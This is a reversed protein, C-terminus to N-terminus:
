KTTLKLEGRAIFDENIEYGQDVQSKRTSGAVSRLLAVDPATLIIIAKQLQEESLGTNKTITTLVLRQV